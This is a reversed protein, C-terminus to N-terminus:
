RVARREAEVALKRVFRNHVLDVIHGIDVQGSGAQGSDVQGSDVPVTERHGPQASRTGNASNAPVAASRAVPQPTAQRGAAAPQVGASQVAAMAPDLLVLPEVPRVNTRVPDVVVLPSVAHEVRAGFDQGGTLPMRPEPSRPGPSRPLVPGAHDPPATPPLPTLPPAPMPPAAVQRQVVQSPTVKPVAPITDRAVPVGTDPSAQPRQGSLARPLAPRAPRVSHAPTAPSSVPLGPGAGTVDSDSTSLSPTAPPRAAAVVPTSTPPSVRVESRAAPSQVRQAYVIPVTTEAFVSGAHRSGLEALSLETAMRTHRALTARAPGQDIVGPRAVPRSLRRVLARDLPVQTDM